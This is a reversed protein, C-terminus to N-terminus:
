KKRYDHATIGFANKFAKSFHAADYFGTELAIDSITKAEANKLLKQAVSLRYKLIYDSISIGIQEKFILSMYSPNLHVHHAIDELRLKTNYNDVIYNIIDYIYPSFGNEDSNRLLPICFETYSDTPTIHVTYNICENQVANYLVIGFFIDITCKAYFRLCATEKFPRLDPTLTDATYLWIHYLTEQMTSIQLMERSLENSFFPQLNLVKNKPDLVGNKYVKFQSLTKPTSKSSNPNFSLIEIDSINLQCGAPMVTNPSYKSSIGLLGANCLIGDYNETNKRLLDILLQTLSCQIQLTYGTSQIRYENLIRNIQTHADDDMEIRIIRPMAIYLHRHHIPEDLIEHLDLVPAQTQLDACTYLLFRIRVYELDRSPNKMVYQTGCPFFTVENKHATYHQLSDTSYGFYDYDVSGGLIFHLDNNTAPVIMGDNIPVTLHQIELISPIFYPYKDPNWFSLYPSANPEHKYM